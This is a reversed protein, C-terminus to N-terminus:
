WFLLCRWFFVSNSQAIYLFKLGDETTVICMRNGVYGTGMGGPIRSSLNAVRKKVNLQYLNGTNSNQVYITDVGDYAYTSGTTLADALFGTIMFGFDYTQNNINM